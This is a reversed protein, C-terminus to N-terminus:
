GVVNNEEGHFIQDMAFEPLINRVNFKLCNLHICLRCCQLKGYEKGDVEESKAFLLSETAKTLNVQTKYRGMNRVFWFKWCFQLYYITKNYFLDRFENNKFVAILRLSQVTVLINADPGTECLVM